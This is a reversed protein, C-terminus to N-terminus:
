STIQEYNFSIGLKMNAEKWSGM